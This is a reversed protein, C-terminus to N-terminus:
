NQAFSPQPCIAPATDTHWSGYSVRVDGNSQVWFMALSDSLDFDYTGTTIYGFHCEITRGEVMASFGLSGETNNVAIFDLTALPQVNNTSYIERGITIKVNTLVSQTENLIAVRHKDTDTSFGLWHYTLVFLGILALGYLALKGSWRIATQLYPHM